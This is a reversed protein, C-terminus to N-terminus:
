EQELLKRVKSRLEAPTFPKVLYDDGGKLEGLRQSPSSKRGTLFIVRIGQTEPDAKIEECVAYGWKDPLMLDLIILDPKLERAMRLTSNGDAAEFMEYRDSKLCEKVTKRITEEDDAILIKKVM